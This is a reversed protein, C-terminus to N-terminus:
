KPPETSILYTIFAIFALSLFFIVIVVPDPRFPRSDDEKELLDQPLPLRGTDTSIAGAKTQRRNAGEKDLEEPPALQAAREAATQSVARVPNHERRTEKKM